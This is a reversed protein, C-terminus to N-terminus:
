WFELSNENTSFFANMLFTSIWGHGFIHLFSCGLVQLGYPSLPHPHPRSFLLGWSILATESYLCNHPFRCLCTHCRKRGCAGVGPKLLNRHGKGTSCVIETAFLFLCCPDWGLISVRAMNHQNPFIHVSVFGHQLPFSHGWILSFILGLDDHTYWLTLIVM